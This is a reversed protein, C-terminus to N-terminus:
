GVLSNRGLRRPTMQFDGVLMECSSVCLPQSWCPTSCRRSQDLNLHESHEGGCM